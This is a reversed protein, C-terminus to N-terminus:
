KVVGLKVLQVRVWAGVPTAVAIVVGLAVWAGTKFWKSSGFGLM